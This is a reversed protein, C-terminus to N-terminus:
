DRWAFISIYIYANSTSWSSLQKHQSNQLEFRNVQDLLHHADEAKRWWVIRHSSGLSSLAEQFLLLHM